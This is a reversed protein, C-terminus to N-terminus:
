ERGLPRYRALGPRDADNDISLLWVPRDDFSRLLRGDSAPDMEGAWVVPAKDIDAANYVWENHPSHKPGYRVIVLHRGGDRKLESLIGARNTGSRNLAMKEPYMIWQANTLVFAMVCTLLCVRVLSRGIPM